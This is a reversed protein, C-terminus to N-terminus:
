LLDEPEDDVVNRYDVFEKHGLQKALQMAQFICVDSNFYEWQGWRGLGFLGQPQAWDLVRSITQAWGLTPLPYAYENTHSYIEGHGSQWRRSNTERYLGKPDSHPAFNHIYFNRHHREELSPVYTWHAPTTYEEEHLSVVVTNHRLSTIAERIEPPFLPSDLLAHWPATNIVRNAHYKGNVVLHGDSREISHAPTGCELVAEVPKLIADFIAQFGGSKPYFFGQHSPMKEADSRRTLCAAVIDAVDIRPIKHLWDIDMEQPEVGWIKRNYPLMYSDAIRDGLKWRIWGEYDTPAALGRAEGNQVVSILYEAQQELPMQWINSELPYDLEMGELVITSVRPFFNFESKPIHSFIFNYVEPHKTCLFHGGGIDLVHGGIKQTRCLGGPEPGAELVCLSKVGAQQLLRAMTIGSIGGGILVYDNIKSM